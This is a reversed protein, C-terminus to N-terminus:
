KLSFNISLIYTYMCMCTYVYEGYEGANSTYVLDTEGDDGALSADMLDIKARREGREKETSKGM